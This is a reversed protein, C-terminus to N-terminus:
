DKENDEEPSSEEKKEESDPALGNGEQGDTEAGSSEAAGDVKSRRYLSPGIAAAVVALCMLVFLDGYVKYFTEHSITSITEVSIGRAFVTEGLPTRVIGSIRGWPDIFCSIGTNTGRVITAGNEIARFVALAVEQKPQSTHGFWGDNSIQILFDAGLRGSDRVLHPFSNEFCILVCFRRGDIEFLTNDKGASFDSILPVIKEVFPLFNQLPVYEGFPALHRKDYRDLIRGRPDVLFASNYFRIDGDISSEDIAYHNSGTLLYIKKGRIIRRIKPMEDVLYGYLSSEPWVVLEVGKAAISHTLRRQVDLMYDRHDINWKVDLSFNPQVIGVRLSSSMDPQRMQTRGWIPIAILLIVIAAFSAITPKPRRINAVLMYILVSVLVIYFSVIYVSGISSLQAVPLINWQTYGLSGWGFGTAIHNHVYEMLVWVAPFIFLAGAPMWRHLFCNIVATIGWFAAFGAFLLGLGLFVIGGSWYTLSAFWVFTICYFVFGTLTAGLFAERYGKGRLWFLLPVLGVYALPWLSAGPFALSLLVSSGILPAIDKIRM